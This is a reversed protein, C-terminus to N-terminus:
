NDELFETMFNHKKPTQIECGVSGWYLVLEDVLVSFEKTNLRSTSKGVMEIVEIGGVITIRPEYKLIKQLTHAHIAEKTLVEGTNEKHFAAITVYAVGWLWRNQASSRQYKLEKFNIELQKGILNKFVRRLSKFHAIRLFQGDDTLEGIISFDTNNITSKSSM